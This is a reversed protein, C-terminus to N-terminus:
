STWADGDGTATSTATPTAALEGGSLKGGKHAAHIKCDVASCFRQCNALIIPGSRDCAGGIPHNSLRTRPDLGREERRGTWPLVSESHCLLRTFQLLAALALWGVM